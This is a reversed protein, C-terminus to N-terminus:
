FERLLRLGIDGREMESIRAEYDRAFDLLRKETFLDTGMALRRCREAQEKLYEVTM